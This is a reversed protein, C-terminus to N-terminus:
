GAIPHVAIGRPQRLGTRVLVMRNSGDFDAVGIIKTGSDTWYLKKNVWDVAIGEPSGLGRVLLQTNRSNNVPARQIKGLYADTWYIFGTDFDFDIGVAAIQHPIVTQHVLSDLQVRCIDRRNAYILFGEPDSSM